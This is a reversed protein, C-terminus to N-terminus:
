FKLMKQGSRGYAATKPKQCDLEALLNKRMRETNKADTTTGRMHNTGWGFKVQAILRLMGRDAKEIVERPTFGRKEAESFSTKHEVCFSEIMADYAKQLGATQSADRQSNRVMQQTGGIASGLNMGGGM